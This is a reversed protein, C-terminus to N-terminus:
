RSEQDYTTKAVPCQKFVVICIGKSISEQTKNVRCTRRIQAFLQLKRQRVSIAITNYQTVQRRKVNLLFQVVDISAVVCVPKTSTQNQRSIASQLVHARLLNAVFKIRADGECGATALTLTHWSLNTCMGPSHNCYCRVCAYWLTCELSVFIQSGGPVV